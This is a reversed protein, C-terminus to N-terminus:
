DGGARMARELSKRRAEGEAWRLVRLTVDPDLEFVTLGDCGRPKPVKKPRGRRLSEGEARRRYVEWLVRRTEMAVAQSVDVQAVRVSVGWRGWTRGPSLFGDPVRKQGWKGSERWLYEAVRGWNVNGAAAEAVTSGWFFPAVDAGFKAHNSRESTGVAGSWASLLWGGFEGELLGCKRRAYYKGRDAELRKRRMTRRVLRDYDDDGVAAPLGVYLHMHPAGRDQFERVWVGRIPEGWRRYWRLKFAEVHRRVQPGSGAWERWEAPYTLSVMAPRRGLDEWALGSFQFRMTNRSRMSWDRIVRGATSPGTRGANTGGGHWRPRTGEGPVWHRQVRGASRTVQVWFKNGGGDDAREGLAPDEWPDDIGRLEYIPRAAPEVAREDDGARAM